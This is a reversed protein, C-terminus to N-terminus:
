ELGMEHFTQALDDKLDCGRCSPDRRNRTTYDPHCRCQTFTAQMRDHFQKAGAAYAKVLMLWTSDLPEETSLVDNAYEEPTM